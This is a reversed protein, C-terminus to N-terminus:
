PREVQDSYAALQEAWGTETTALWVTLERLPPTRLSYIRVRADAIAALTVDVAPAASSAAEPSM